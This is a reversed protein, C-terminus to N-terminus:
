PTATADLAPAAADGVIVGGDSAITLVAGDRVSGDVMMPVASDGIPTPPITRGEVDDGSDFDAIVECGALACAGLIALLRRV